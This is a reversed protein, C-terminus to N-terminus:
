EESLLWNSVYVDLTLFAQNLTLVMEQINRGAPDPGHMRAADVECSCRDFFAWGHLLSNLCWASSVGVDVM